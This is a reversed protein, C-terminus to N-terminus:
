LGILNEYFHATGKKSGDTILRLHKMKGSKGEGRLELSLKNSKM